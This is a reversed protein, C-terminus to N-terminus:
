RRATRARRRQRRLPSCRLRQRWRPRTTRRQRWFARGARACRRARAYCTAAAASCRSVPPPPLFPPPTGPYPHPVLKRAPGAAHAPPAAARRGAACQASGWSRGARAKRVAQELAAGAAAVEACVGASDGGSICAQLKRKSALLAGVPAGEHHPLLGADNLAQATSLLTSTPGPSSAISSAIPDGFYPPPPAYVGTISPTSITQQFYLLTEMTKERVDGVWSLPNTRGENGREVM